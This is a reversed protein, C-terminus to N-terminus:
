KKDRFSLLQKVFHYVYEQEMKSRGQLEFNIKDMFTHDVSETDLKDFQFLEEIEVGLASAIKEISIITASKEGREVQGVYSTNLGDKLALKEQSMGRNSRTLRIQEGLLTTIQSM